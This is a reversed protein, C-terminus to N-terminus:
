ERFLGAETVGGVRILLDEIVMYSLDQKGCDDKANNEQEAHMVLRPMSLWAEYDRLSKWSINWTSCEVWFARNSYVSSGRPEYTSNSANGACFKLWWSLELEPM